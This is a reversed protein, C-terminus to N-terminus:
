KAAGATNTAETSHIVPLPKRPRGLTKTSVTAGAATSCQRSEGGAAGEETDAAPPVDNIM